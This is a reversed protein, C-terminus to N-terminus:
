QLLRQGIWEGEKTGGPVVFLSSGIHRAWINLSDNEALARQIVNFNEVDRQFSIFILGADRTGDELYGDDYNFGRRILKSQAAKKALSVHSEPAEVREGSTISRGTALSKNTVSLKDWNELAFRIRRVVMTTGGALSGDEIWATKSFLETGVVPNATGDVQGLLNRGIVGSNVGAANLFGRQQYRVLAFPAADRKLLHALHFIAMPDDGAIQVVIDGDSWRSDLADSAFPPITSQNIPWRDLIGLSKFLSYGFGFTATLRAPNIEMGPNPDGISEIGQTAQEADTTWVRLLRGLDEIDVGDKLDFTLLTAQAQQATEIGAQHIGFFPETASGLDNGDSNNAVGLTILSSLIAFVVGILIIEVNKSKMEVMGPKM